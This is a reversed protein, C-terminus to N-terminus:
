KRSDDIIVKGYNIETVQLVTGLSRETALREELDFDSVIEATGEDYDCVLYDV